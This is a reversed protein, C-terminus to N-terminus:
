IPWATGTSIRRQRIRGIRIALLVDGLTPTAGNMLWEITQGTSADYWILDSKGDGNLDPTLTVRWIADTLLGPQRHAGNMLWTSTEGSTANHWILDAKGDGNLDPTGVPQWHLDAVLQM